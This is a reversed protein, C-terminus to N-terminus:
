RHRLLLSEVSLQRNIDIQISKADEKRLYPGVYVRYRTKGAADVRKSYARFQQRLLQNVLVQARSDAVYSAVQLVWGKPIASQAARPKTRSRSKSENTPRENTSGEDAPALSAANESSREASSGANALTVSGALSDKHLPADHLPAELAFVDQPRRKPPPAPVVTVESTRSQFSEPMPPIQSRTDVTPMDPRQLLVPLFLVGLAALVAAGLIRQKAGNNLRTSTFGYPSEAETEYGSDGNSLAHPEDFASPPHREREDLHNFQSAGNM